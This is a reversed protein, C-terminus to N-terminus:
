IANGRQHYVSIIAVSRDYLMRSASPTSLPQLHRYSWLDHDLQIESTTRRCLVPIYLKILMALRDVPVNKGSTGAKRVVPRHITCVGNLTIGLLAEQILSTVDKMRSTMGRM